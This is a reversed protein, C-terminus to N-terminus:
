DLGYLRLYRDLFLLHSTNQVEFNLTRLIKEELNCFETTKTSVGWEKKVLKQMRVFSPRMPQELKASMLCSVIALNIFCPLSNGGVITYVLHKDAISLATFYAEEKYQKLKCMEEILFAM